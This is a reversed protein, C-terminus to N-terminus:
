TGPALAAVLQAARVGHGEFILRRGPDAYEIRVALYADLAGPPLRDFWEIATVGPGYVYERLALLDAAGPALRYLDVHFVPLRGAYEAIMTFTPSAVLHSPVRLGAALGRVFATKGAGLDGDLTIVDGAAVVRGLRAGVAETEEVSATAVTLTESGSVISGGGRDVPV